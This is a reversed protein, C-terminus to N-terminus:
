RVKTQVRTGPRLEDTGRRAVIDGSDLNGRVEVLDGSAAGKVVDVWEVVGGRIRNVFTRETTVAVATPPVLLVSGQSLVTWTVSPFMGPALRGQPNEVDLEVPMSRTKPDVEGSLRAVVGTFSMNPYAPVRFTVRRGRPIGGADREPVAVVLRLRSQQEIDFLPGTQAGVLAGPHVYRTTIVGAFPATIRLYAQTEQVAKVSAQTAAVSAQAAKVASEEAEVQRQAQILENGAIAGPTESAAHLKDYTSRAAAVRAEAEAVQSELMRVRAQAEALQAEMEPVVIQALLDGERVQSGRDVLVKEVFGTIKAHVATQEWPLFEGPLEVKREVPLAVVQAAEITAQAYLLGSAWLLLGTLIAFKHSM